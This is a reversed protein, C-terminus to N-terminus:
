CEDPGSEATRQVFDKHDGIHLALPLLERRNSIGAKRMINKMHSHATHPSVHLTDAIEKDAIRGTAIVSLVDRERSTFQRPDIGAGRTRALGSGFVASILQESEQMRSVFRVGQLAAAVSM